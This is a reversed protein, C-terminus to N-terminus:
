KNRLWKATDFKEILLDYISQYQATTVEATLAFDTNTEPYKSPKKSIESFFLFYKAM